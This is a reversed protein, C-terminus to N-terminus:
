IIYYETSANQSLVEEKSYQAPYLLLVKREIIVKILIKVIIMIIRYFIILSYYNLYQIFKKVVYIM